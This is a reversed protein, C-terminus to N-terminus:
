AHLVGASLNLQRVSELFQKVEKEGHLAQVWRDFDLTKSRYTVPQMGADLLMPMLEAYRPSVRVLVSSTSAFHNVM